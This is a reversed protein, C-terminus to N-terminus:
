ITYKYKPTLSFIYTLVEHLTHLLVAYIEFDIIPNYGLGFTNTGINYNGNHFYKDNSFRYSLTNGEIFLNLESSKVKIYIDIEDKDFDNIDFVFNIDDNEIVNEGYDACVYCLDKMLQCIDITKLNKSYYKICKWVSYVRVYPYLPKLKGSNFKTLTKLTNLLM